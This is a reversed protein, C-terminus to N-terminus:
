YTKHQPRVLDEKSRKGSVAALLLQDIEDMLSARQVNLDCCRKLVEHLAEFRDGWTQRFEEVNMRRIEYLREQNHWMKLDVTVLKDVLSGLTDMDTKEATPEAEQLLPIEAVIVAHADAPSEVLAARIRELADIDIM